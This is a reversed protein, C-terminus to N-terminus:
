ETSTARRPGARDSTDRAARRNPDPTRRSQRPQGRASDGGEIRELDAKIAGLIKATSASIGGDPAEEANARAASLSPDSVRLAALRQREAVQRPHTRLGPITPINMSTHARENFAKWTQAPYSGGTVGGGGRKRMPRYNDNGLWVGTVLEGTFGMFWADRYSSSTGTKGVAHTFDLNARKGTGATTVAFMLRNTQQVAREPILQERADADRARVYVRQGSSNTIETIAYPTAEKGGNAFVAYGGTHQLPTIGTDGLAISCSPRVGPIGLKEVFSVVNRRGLELSLKVATTNLSRRFADTMSVRRGSGYSGNYNRPSWRGCRPSSDRLTSRESYRGALAAAYVYTKFSSGPQRRARTARNFQSEGYDIGGVLARVAGDPNMSVLAGTGFRGSRGYTRVTQKLADEGAEQLDLDVTTRVTLVYEDRGRMIRQVEEFAWDLFWDPAQSKTQEIPTAPKLRAAYVEGATYYGAEVLNSLVENARARAAPLNIHPAYKTPAKYLGAMMAAEALTVDRVSKGFYFQAAAETGFAGGGMYARDLYLKLIERKSLRAELWIALFAEKIKRTISRESSLFLNKALQQTLTSGGQVVDNARVNEILARLTGIIDVGYHEFFRRDETALTARVMADPMEDLPVADDINIGRFGIETDNRDHFTVSYQGTTMWKAEDAEEFAPLALGYMLVLGGCGLTLTESAMENLFKRSGTLRLRAFWSSMANYRQRVAGVGAFLKTDIWAGFRLWDVVAGRGGQRFFWDSM